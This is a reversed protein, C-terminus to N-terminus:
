IKPRKICTSRNHGKGGCIGCTLQNEYDVEGRSRIRVKKPRGAKKKVVRPVTTCDSVLGDVSIPTICNEYTARLSSIFYTHHIFDEPPVGLTLIVAAAHRCPFQQETFERCSCYQQDLKVVRRNGNESNLVEFGNESFQIIERKMGEITNEKL